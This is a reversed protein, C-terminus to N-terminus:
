GKPCYPIHTKWQHRMLAKETGFKKGCMKCVYRKM